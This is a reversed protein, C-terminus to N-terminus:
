VEIKIDKLMILNRKVLMDRARKFKYYNNANEAEEMKIALDREEKPTLLKGYKGIWRMYRKVIDNTETLKNTLKDTKLSLENDDIYWLREIICWCWFWWRWRNGNILMIM